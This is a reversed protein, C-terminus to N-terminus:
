MVYCSGSGLNNQLDTPNTRFLKTDDAYLVTDGHIDSWKCEVVTDNIFINFLLPGIVSVQPVGSTVHLTNSYVNNIGVVQTRSNLFEKIWDLVNASVLDYVKLVSILKIHSVLDFSKAIDTYVVDLDM